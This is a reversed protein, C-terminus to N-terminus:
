SGVRGQEIQEREWRRSEEIATAIGQRHREEFLKWAQFGAWGILVLVAAGLWAWSDVVFVAAVALAVLAAFGVVAAVLRRLRSGERFFVDWALFVFIGTPALLAWSDGVYVATVASAAVAAFGGVAAAVARTSRDEDRLSRLGGLLLGAGLVFALAVRFWSTTVAYIVVVALVFVWYAIAARRSLEIEVRM